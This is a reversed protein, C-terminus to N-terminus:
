WRGQTVDRSRAAMIKAGWLVMAACIAVWFYSAAILVRNALAWQAGVSLPTGFIRLATVSTLENVGLGGPTLGIVSAIGVFPIAAAMQWLPIHIGVAVATQISMLVVIAFRGASLMVLRRALTANLLDSHQLEWLGRLIRNRPASSRANYFAALWRILLIAPGAALLALVIMAAASVAWFVAGGRSLWTLGSAGALFVAILIDFSQEFLTGITGRKLAAGYIYTGLTRATAMALQAPLLIGLALGASTVAFSTTRSPVSDSPHRWAADISRWKETSLYVLLCNLLALKSFSILSVSQLQRFTERLDIRSIRILLAILVVSLAVSAGVLFSRRWIM